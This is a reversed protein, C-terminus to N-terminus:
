MPSRTCFVSCSISRVGFKPRFDSLSILSTSACIPRCRPISIGPQGGSFMSSKALRRSSGYQDWAASLEPSAVHAVTYAAAFEVAGRRVALGHEGVHRRREDLVLLNGGRQGLGLIQARDDLLQDREALAPAQMGAALRQR